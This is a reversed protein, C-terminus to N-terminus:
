AKPSSSVFKAAATTAWAGGLAGMGRPGLGSAYDKQGYYVSSPGYIGGPEFDQLATAAGTYGGSMMSTLTVPDQDNKWGVYDNVHAGNPNYQQYEKFFAQLAAEGTAVVNGAIQQAQANLSHIQWLDTVGQQQLYQNLNGGQAYFDKIQQPSFYKGALTMGGPTETATGQAQVMTNGVATLVGNSDWAYGNAPNGVWKEINAKMVKSDSGGVGCVQMAHQIETETLSMLTAQKAFEEPTSVSAFASKLQHDSYKQGQGISEMVASFSTSASAQALVSLNSRSSSLVGMTPTGQIANISM